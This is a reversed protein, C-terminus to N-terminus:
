SDRWKDALVGIRLQSRSNGRGPNRLTRHSLIAKYQPISRMVKNKNIIFKGSWGEDKVSGPGSQHHAKALCRTDAQALPIVLMIPLHMPAPTCDAM